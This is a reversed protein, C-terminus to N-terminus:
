VDVAKVCQIEPMESFDVKLGDPTKYHSHVTDLLLDPKTRLTELHEGFHECKKQEAETTVCWRAPLVGGTNNSVFFDIM